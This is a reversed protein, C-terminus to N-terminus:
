VVSKRDTEWDRYRHYQHTYTFNVAIVRVLAGAAIANAQVALDDLVFRRSIVALALAFSSWAVATWIEPFAMWLSATALVAAAYSSYFLLRRDVHDEFFSSWRQSICHANVYFLVSAVGLVLLGVLYDPSLDASDIRRGFVRSAEYALMQAATAFSALLGLRAFLIERTWM